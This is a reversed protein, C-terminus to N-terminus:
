FLSQQSTRKRQMEVYEPNLECGIWSRGLSQAVVGTTGSGMFCDLVIGKRVENTECQCQKKLDYKLLTKSQIADTKLEYETLCRDIDEYDKSWDNVFDRIKQWDDVSPYAFGTEDARFWHEIKTLPIDTNEAM